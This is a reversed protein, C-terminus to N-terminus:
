LRKSCWIRAPASRNCTEALLISCIALHRDSITRALKVAAISTANRVGRTPKPRIQAASDLRRELCGLPEDEPPLIEPATLQADHDESVLASRHSYHRQKQVLPLIAPLQRQNAGTDGVIQVKIRAPTSRPFPQDSRRHTSYNSLTPPRRNAPDRPSVGKADNRSAMSSVGQLKM